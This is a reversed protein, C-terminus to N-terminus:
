TTSMFCLYCSSQFYVRSCMNQPWHKIYGRQLFTLIDNAWERNGKLLCGRNIPHQDRIVFPMMMGNTPLAMTPPPNKPLAWDRTISFLSSIWEIMLLALIPTHYVHNFLWILGRYVCFSAALTVYTSGLM